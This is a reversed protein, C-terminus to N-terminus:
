FALGLLKLAAEVPRYDPTPTHRAERVIVERFWLATGEEGCNVCRVWWCAPIQQIDDRANPRAFWPTSPPHLQVSQPTHCWPCPQSLTHARITDIDSASLIDPSAEAIYDHAAVQM